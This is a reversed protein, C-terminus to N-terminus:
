PRYRSFVYDNDAQPQHCAFCAQKANGAVVRERGDGTFGEFGWGGTDPYREADKHMVGVVKREREVVAGDAREVDLLDFVLTAGDEFRGEAYGRLAVENAYIHHLGGFAAYLPHGPEILMSKVHSWHRYGEPYPVPDTEASAQGVCLLACVFLGRSRTTFRDFRIM